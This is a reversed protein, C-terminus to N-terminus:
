GLSIPWGGPLKRLALGPGGIRYYYRLAIAEKLLRAQRGNFVVPGFTAVADDRGVSIVDGTPAPRFERHRGYGLDAAINGAVLDAQQLALQASPPLPQGTSPDLVLASDGLVWVRPHNTSELYENVVARGRSGVELGWAALEAPAKVGGVWILTSTPIAEGSALHVSEAEARVVPSGLRLEVGRELLLKRALGMARRGFGPLITRSAEILLMRIEANPIDNSGALDPLWDALEGAIEVGTFGAGGVVFTLMKQRDQATADRARAFAREVQAKIGLAQEVSKLTFASEELGPIGFFDTESGLAIVLQQYPVGQGEVFLQHQELDAASVRGQLFTIRRGRLLRSFPVIADRPAISNAAVEHLLIIHQHYRYRDVLVIEWDRDPSRSLRRELELAVNLGGYGGGLILIRM